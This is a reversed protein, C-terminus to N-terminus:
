SARRTARTANTDITVVIQLPTRSTVRYMVPDNRWPDVTKNNPRIITIPNATIIPNTRTTINPSTTTNPNTTISTITAISHSATTNHSIIISPSTITRTNATIIPSAITRKATSTIKNSFHCLFYIVSPKHLMIILCSCERISTEAKLRHLDKFVM